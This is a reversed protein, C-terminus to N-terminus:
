GDLAVWVRGGEIRVPYVRLAETVPECLPQGSTLDFQGQHLPCEVVTGEVFGDCLRANGHTCLADSAFVQEGSRFLALSRGGVQAEICAGDWVDDAAAADIWRSSM